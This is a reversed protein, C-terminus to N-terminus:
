AFFSFFISFSISCRQSCSWQSQSCPTTFDAIFCEKFINTNIIITDKISFKNICKIPSSVILLIKLLLLIKPGIRALKTPSIGFQAEDTIKVCSLKDPTIGREVIIEPNSTFAPKPNSTNNLTLM